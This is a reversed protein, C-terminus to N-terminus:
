ISARPPRMAILLNWREGAHPQVTPDRSILRVRLEHAVPHPAEIHILADFLWGDGRAAPISEITADARVRDEAHTEPWVHQLYSHAQLAAFLFGGCAWALARGAIYRHFFIALVATAAVTVVTAVAPM